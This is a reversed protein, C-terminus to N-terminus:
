FNETTQAFRTESFKAERLPNTAKATSTKVKQNKQTLGFSRQFYYEM